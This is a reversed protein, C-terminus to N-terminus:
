LVLWKIGGIGAIVVECGEEGLRIVPYQLELDEFGEKALMVIRKNELKM